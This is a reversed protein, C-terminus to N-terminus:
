PLANKNERFNFFVDIIATIKTVFIITIFCLLLFDFINSNSLIADLGTPTELSDQIQFFIRREQSAALWFCFHILPLALIAASIFLRIIGRKWLILLCLPLFLFNISRSQHPAAYIFSYGCNSITFHGADNSKEAKYRKNIENDVVYSNYQQIRLYSFNVLLLLFASLTFRFIFQHQSKSFFQNQRM